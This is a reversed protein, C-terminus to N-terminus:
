FLEKFVKSLGWALVGFFVLSTMNTGSNNSNWNIWGDANEVGGTGGVTDIASNSSQGELSGTEKYNSYWQQVNGNAFQNARWQYYQENNTIGSKQKLKRNFDNYDINPNSIRSQKWSEYAYRNPDINGGSGGSEGGEIGKYTEYLGLASGIGSILSGFM